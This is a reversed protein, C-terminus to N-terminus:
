GLAMAVADNHLVVPVGLLRQLEGRLPFDRWGPINLPSVRGAPWEMPGGCGVGAAPTGDGDLVRTVLATLDGWLQQADAGPATACQARREVRGAHDVLAAAM